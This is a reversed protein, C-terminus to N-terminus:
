ILKRMAGTWNGDLNMLLRQWGLREYFRVARANGPNVTLKMEQFELERARTEAEDMLLGGIGKGWHEPSVAIVLIGFSKLPPDSRLAVSPKQRRLIELGASVQSRFQAILWPHTLLRGILFRRNQGIFGSLAGRFIGGLCFGVLQSDLDAALGVLQHVGSLQWDYYRCVAEQGLSTLASDPFAQLHIRTMGSLDEHRLPRISVPMM